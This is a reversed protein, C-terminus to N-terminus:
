FDGSPIATWMGVLVVVVVIRENEKEPMLNEVVL